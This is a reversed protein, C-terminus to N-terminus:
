ETWIICSEKQETNKKPTGPHIFSQFNEDEDHFKVSWVSSIIDYIGPNTTLLLLGLLIHSTDFTFLKWLINWFNVM